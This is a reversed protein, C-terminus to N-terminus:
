GAMSGALIRRLDHATVGRPCCVLLRQQKLAGEVLEPLDHPTYGFDALGAPGGTDAVISNLTAPLVDKGSTTSIGNLNAGLLEAARLHREPSTPYTFAFAEAATAVVASGHPVMAHDVAYGHPRYERVSGAVPYACAHPIHTGANGFGMGAFAAAQSMGTRAELDDPNLVARRLYRGVLRLAQEAWVDSIPNAGIYLPRAAPAPYPPRRDYPRATYSECAHTLVDYGSSATVAPPLTLTNAPDVLALSPLLRLDSIGTKVNMGTVGLAVMATCESGSGATTPVAVLPKLPGPIPAGAGVPVNLYERVSRGPYSLLLNLMKATDISSGGGLGVYADVEIAELERAAHTCSEDTPEVQARDFISVSIGEHEIQKAVRPSLGLGSLVPDTVLLVSRAGIRALEYGIEHTAGVGFKLPPAQWGVIREHEPQNESIWATPEM